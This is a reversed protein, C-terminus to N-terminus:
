SSNIWQFHHINRHTELQAIHYLYGSLHIRIISDYNGDPLGAWLVDM